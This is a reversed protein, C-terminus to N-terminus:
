DEEFVPDKEHAEVLLRLIDDNWANDAYRECMGAFQIVIPDEFGYIHILRDILNERYTTMKKDGKRKRTNYYCLLAQKDLGKKNNNQFLYL